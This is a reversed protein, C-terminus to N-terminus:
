SAFHHVVLVGPLSSEHCNIEYYLYSIRLGSFCTAYKKNRYALFDAVTTTPSEFIPLSLLFFTQLMFFFGYVLFSHIDSLPPFVILFGNGFQSENRLQRNPSKNKLIKAM